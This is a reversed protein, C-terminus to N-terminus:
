YVSAGSSSPNSTISSPFMFYLHSHNDLPLQLGPGPSCEPCSSLDATYHSKTGARLHIMKGEM